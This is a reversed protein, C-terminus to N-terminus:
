FNYEFICTNLYMYEHVNYEFIIYIEIATKFFKMSVNKQFIISVTIYNAVQLMNKCINYSIHIQFAHMIIHNSFASSTM